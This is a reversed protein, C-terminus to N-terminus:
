EARFVLHGRAVKHHSQQLQNLAYAEREGVLHIMAAPGIGAHRAVALSTVIVAAGQNVMPNAVMLKTYPWAILRNEPTPTTIDDSSFRKKLWSNPNESAVNAYTSWLAGSEALAERPM